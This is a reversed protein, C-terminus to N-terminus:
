TQKNEEDEKVVKSHNEEETGFHVGKDLSYTLHRMVQDGHNVHHGAMKWCTFLSYFM